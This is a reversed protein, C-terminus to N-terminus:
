DDQNIAEEGGDTKINRTLFSRIFPAILAVITLIGLAISLPRSFLYGWFDGKCMITTRYLNGEAMPGLIMALIVPATPIQLKRFLYGVIGFIFMILVDFMSRNIAYSGLVSLCVIIPALVYMPVEAVKAIYKGIKLGILGMMLNAVLFGIIIAYTTVAKKTFLDSGPQMGHLLLGGMLVAAVSSGPVGLTLLPIYSGGTVANNATESACIGEFSGHGFQDKNKSARKAENYALWSGTDGGAGPLIGVLLGVIASRIFNPIYKIYERAPFLMKGKLLESTDVKKVESIMGKRLMEAQHMVQSISFMGILAPVMAIVSELHLNGFCFRPYANVKDTGICCIVLGFAGAFLGKIMNEGALSAIITLGFVAILFFEPASFKLSVRALPPALLLLMVASFVGGVMSSITSMGIAQLGKGQKTLEYGDLATAASSPTGPTHLLIATISGGYTATTYVSSLMILAPVADMGYSIPIMLAVGMTASLGPLAGIVMGGVVGILLGLLSQWTLLEKLIQSFM